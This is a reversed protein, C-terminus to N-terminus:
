FNKEWKFSEGNTIYRLMNRKVDEYKRKAEGERTTGKSLIYDIRLSEIYDM